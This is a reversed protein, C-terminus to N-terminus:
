KNVCSDYLEFTKDVMKNKTFLSNFRKFAGESLKKYLEPDNGIKQIAEALQEPSEPEVTLGSEGDLNVWDVGSGKIRTSIVPKAMSMAELQVVGFAESLKISSMCYIDCAKYYAGLETHPIGGLLQVKAQLDEREIMTQLETALEGKGGILVVYDDPLLKAARILYEFGKYYTLRGLGFVIKKGAHHARIKDVLSSDVNLDDAGIGIPISLVKNSFQKLYPSEEAYKPTTAIIAHAKEMLKRQLPEYFAMVKKQKVIDSHWHLIIKAKTPFMLVALNALPNPLHVHIIDYNNRIKAYDLLNSPSLSTSMAMGFSSSRFISYKDREFAKKKTENVCLVDCVAGKANIGETIDFVVKELGGFTPPYFKSFQLVRM